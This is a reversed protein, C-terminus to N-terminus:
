FSLSVNGPFHVARDWKKITNPVNMTRGNEIWWSLDDETLFNTRTIPVGYIHRSGIMFLESEHLLISFSIAVDSDGKEGEESVTEEKMVTEEEKEEQYSVSLFFSPQRKYRWFRAHLAAHAGRVAM